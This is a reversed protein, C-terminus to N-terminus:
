TGPRLDAPVGAGLRLGEVPCKARYVDYTVRRLEALADAAAADITTFISSM